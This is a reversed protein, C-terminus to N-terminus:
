SNLHYHRKKVPKVDPKLTINIVGLEGIIGKLDLFNM